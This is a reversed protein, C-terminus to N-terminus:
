SSYLLYEDTPVGAFFIELASDFFRSELSAQKFGIRSVLFQTVSNDKHVAALWKLGPYKASTTELQWKLAELIISFHLTKCLPTWGGVIFKEGKIERVEHWIYICPSDGALGIFNERQNTFWWTYHSPKSIEKTSIMFKRTTEMNRGELILNVDSTKAERITFDGNIPLRKESDENLGRHFGTESSQTLRAHIYAAVNNAGDFGPRVYANSLLTKLISLRSLTLNLFSSFHEDDFEALSGLNFYHGIQELQFDENKQTSNLSFTIQPVLCASSEYIISNAAGIVLDCSSIVPLLSECFDLLLFQISPPLQAASFLDSLFHQSVYRSKILVIEIDSESNKLGRLVGSIAAKVENKQPNTGLYVFIRKAPTFKPLKIPPHGQSTLVVHRLAEAGLGLHQRERNGFYRIGYPIKDVRPNNLTNSDDLCFLRIQSDHFFNFWEDTARYSDLILTTIQKKAMFSSLFAHESEGHLSDMIVLRERLPMRSTFESPWSNDLAYYAKYGLLELQEGIGKARTIHGLGSNESNDIRFLISRSM